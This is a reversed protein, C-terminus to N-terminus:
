SPTERADLAAFVAEPVLRSARLVVLLESDLASVAAITEAAADRLLPPLQSFTMASIATIGIVDEMALAVTRDAAEVAVLRAAKTATSGIILGIDVVPVPAGRIISLGLVYRPAAAFRELPLVRMIERVQEIPLACLMSGSRCLLWSTSAEANATAPLWPDQGDWAALPHLTM